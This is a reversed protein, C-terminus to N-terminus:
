NLPATTQPPRNPKVAKPRTPSIASLHGSRTTDPNFGSIDRGFVPDQCDLRFITSGTETGVGCVKWGTVRGSGTKKLFIFVPPNFTSFPDPRFLIRRGSPSTSSPHPPRVRIRVPLPPPHFHLAHIFFCSCRRRRRPEKARTRRQEKAWTLTWSGTWSVSSLKPREHTRPSAWGLSCV